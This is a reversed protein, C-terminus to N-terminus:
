PHAVPRRPDHSQDYGLRTCLAAFGRAGTVLEIQRDTFADRWKDDLRIGDTSEYFHRNYTARGTWTRSRGAKRRAQSHPGTNGGIPHHEKSAYDLMTPDVTLGSGDLVTKLAEEPATAVQEYSLYVVDGHSEFYAREREVHAYFKALRKVQERVFATFEEDTVSGRAQALDPASTDRYLRNITFSALSRLPHKTMVVWTFPEPAIRLFHDVSKSADCIVPRDTLNRLFDYLGGPGAQNATALNERTWLRCAPGCVACRRRPDADFLRRLESGGYISPHSGLMYNLLTSGCYSPGLVGIAPV